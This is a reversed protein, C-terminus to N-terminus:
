RCIGGGFAKDLNAFFPLCAPELHIVDAAANPGATTEVVHLFHRQVKRPAIFLNFFVQVVNAVQALRADWVAGVRMHSVANPAATTLHQGSAIGTGCQIQGTGIRLSRPSAFGKAVREGM